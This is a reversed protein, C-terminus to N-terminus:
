LRFREETGVGEGGGLNLFLVCLGVCGVVICGLGFGLVLGRLLWFTLDRAGEIPSTSSLGSGGLISVLFLGFVAWPGLFTAGAGLGFRTM